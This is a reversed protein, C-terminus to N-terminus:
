WGTTADYAMIDNVTCGETDAVAQLEVDKKYWSRELMHKEWAMLASYLGVISANTHPVSTDDKSRWVFDPPLIAGLLIFSLTGLIRERSKQDTDYVNGDYTFGSVLTVERFRTIEEQKLAVAEAVTKGWYPDSKRYILTDIANIVAEYEPVPANEVTISPDSSDIFMGRDPEYDVYVKGTLDVPNEPYYLLYEDFSSFGVEKDGDRVVVYKGKEILFMRGTDM